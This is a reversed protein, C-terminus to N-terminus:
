DALGLIEKARQVIANVHIPLEEKSIDKEWHIYVQDGTDHELAYEPIDAVHDIGRRSVTMVTNLANKQSPTFKFFVDMKEGMIPLESYSKILKRVANTHARDVLVRSSGFNQQVPNIFM